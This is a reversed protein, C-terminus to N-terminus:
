YRVSYRDGSELRLRCGAGQQGQRPTEGRCGLPVCCGVLLGAVLAESPRRDLLFRAVDFVAFRAALVALVVLVVSAVALGPRLRPAPRPSGPHLHAAPNRGHLLLPPTIALLLLLSPM